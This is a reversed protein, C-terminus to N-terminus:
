MVTRTCVNLMIIHNVCPSRLDNKYIVHINSKTCRMNHGFLVHSIQINETRLSFYCTSKKLYHTKIVFVYLM